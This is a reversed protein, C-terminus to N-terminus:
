CTHLFDWWFEFCKKKFFVKINGWVYTHKRKIARYTDTNSKLPSLKVWMHWWNTHQGWAGRCICVVLLSAYISPINSIAAPSSGVDGIKVSPKLAQKHSPSCTKGLCALSHWPCGFGALAIAHAALAYWPSSTWFLFFTNLTVHQM